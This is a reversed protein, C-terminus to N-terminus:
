GMRPVFRGHESYYKVVESDLGLEKLEMIIERGPIRKQPSGRKLLIYIITDLRKNISETDDSM